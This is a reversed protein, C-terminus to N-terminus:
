VVGDRHLTAITDADYGLELLVADTHQGLAPAPSRVSGPTRSLKLPTGTITTRGAKPHEIEVAMARQQVQPDAFVQDYRYVPGCPIGAAIFDDHWQASTRVALAAEIAEQLARRNEVRDRNTAFRPDNELHALGALECFRKWLHQQDAAITLYGDRTRFAGHPQNRRHM